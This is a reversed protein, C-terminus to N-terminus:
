AAPRATPLSRIREAATFPIPCVICLWEVASANSHFPFRKAGCRTCCVTHAPARVVPRLAPFLDGRTVIEIAM